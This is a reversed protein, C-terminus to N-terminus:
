KEEWISSSGYVLIENFNQNKFGLREERNEIEVVEPNIDSNVESNLMKLEGMQEVEEFHNEQTKKLILLM